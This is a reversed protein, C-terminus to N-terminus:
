SGSGSEKVPREEGGGDEAAQVPGPRPSTAGQLKVQSKEMPYWAYWGIAHSM